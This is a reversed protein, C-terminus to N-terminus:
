PQQRSSRKHFYLQRGRKEESQNLYESIRLRIFTKKITKNCKALHPHFHFYFLSYFLSNFHSYFLSYFLVFSYTNDQAYRMVEKKVEM